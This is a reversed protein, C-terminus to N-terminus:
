TDERSAPRRPSDSLADGSLYDRALCEAGDPVFYGWGAEAERVAEMAESPTAPTGRAFHGRELDTDTTEAQVIGYDYIRESSEM